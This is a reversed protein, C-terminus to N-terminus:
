SDNDQSSGTRKLQSIVLKQTPVGASMTGSSNNALEYFVNSLRQLKHMNQAAHWM